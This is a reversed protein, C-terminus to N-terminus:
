KLYRQGFLAGKAGDLGPGYGVRSRLVQGTVPSFAGQGAGWSFSFPRVTM